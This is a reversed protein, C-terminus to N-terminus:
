SANDAASSVPPLGFARHDALACRDQVVRIGKEELLRAVEHNEIGLQFWVVKPLPRMALIDEVHGPIDESRRFVDVIDIPESLEALTSTVTQGFITQGAHRPNVPLVRYGNEVLYAPVYHAPRAPRDSAGLVAITRAERLFQKALDPDTAM